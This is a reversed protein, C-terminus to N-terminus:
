QRPVTYENILWHAPISVQMQPYEVCTYVRLKRTLDVEYKYARRLALEFTSYLHDHFYDTQWKQRSPHQGVIRLNFGDFDPTVILSHSSWGCYFGDQNMHHFDFDFVLKHPKSKHFNLRTGADIGSGSPMWYKVLQHLEQESEYKSNPNHQIQYLYSSIFQVVQKTYSM